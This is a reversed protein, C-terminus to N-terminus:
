AAYSEIIDVAREVGGLSLLEAGLRAANDTYSSDELVTHIADHIQGASLSTQWHGLIDWPEGAHPSPRKEPVTQSHPLYIGAGAAAVNRINSAAESTFAGIGIIPRGIAMTLAMTSHGGHSLVLSSDETAEPASIFPAVRLSGEYYRSILGPGNYNNPDGVVYFGMDPESSIVQSLMNEYGYSPRNSEGVYSFARPSAQRSVPLFLDSKRVWRSLMGVYHSDGPNSLLPDLSPSSPIINADGSFMYREDQIPPLGFDHRVENFSARCDPLVFDAPPEVWDGLTHGHINGTTQTIGIVPTSTAEAATRITDRYDNIVADPRFSDITEIENLTAAQLWRVDNFGLAQLRQAHRLAHSYLPFEANKPKAQPPRNPITYVADTMALSGIESAYKPSSIFGVEHGRKHAEAALALVRTLHGRGGDWFSFLLRKSESM